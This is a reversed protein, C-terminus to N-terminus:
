GRRDLHQCTKSFDAATPLFVGRKTSLGRQGVESDRSCKTGLGLRSSTGPEGGSWARQKPFVHSSERTPRDFDFLGVGQPIVQIFLLKIVPVKIVTSTASAHM